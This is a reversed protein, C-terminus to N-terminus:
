HTGFLVPGLLGLYDSELTTGERCLASVQAENRNTPLKLIYKTILHLPSSTHPTLFPSCELTVELDPTQAVRSYSRRRFSPGQTRSVAGSLPRQEQLMAQTSSSHGEEQDQLILSIAGGLRRQFCGPTQFTPGKKTMPESEGLWPVTAAM